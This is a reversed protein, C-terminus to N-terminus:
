NSSETRPTQENAKAQEQKLKHQEIEQVTKFVCDDFWDYLEYPVDESDGHCVNGAAWALANLVDLRAQRNEVGVNRADFYAKGRTLFDAALNEIAKYREPNDARSLTQRIKSNM